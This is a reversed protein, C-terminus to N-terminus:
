SNAMELLLDCFKKGIVSVDYNQAYQRGRRGMEARRSPNEILLSLKERWQRPTDALFGTVGEQVYESNTGIPSAVVPIGSASYELVKFSCKGRTFPTDPLPALGIDCDGICGSRAQPTWPIKEICVGEMDMFDDCILRLVLAPYKEALSQM